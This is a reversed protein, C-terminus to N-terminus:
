EIAKDGQAPKDQAQRLFANSYYDKKEEVCM